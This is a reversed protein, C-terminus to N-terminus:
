TITSKREHKWVYILRQIATFNALVATAWIAIILFLEGILAGFGIYFVREPRQMIGIKCELNLSESRARVYSVMISGGLALLVAISTLVQTAFQDTRIFYIAAGLFMLYESFRDMTSDYLAGFKSGRGTARAINGDLTDCVGGILIFVGALRIFGFILAFAGAVNLVFGLTTFWNPNVELKALFNVIPNLARFYLKQFVKPIINIKRGDIKSRINSKQSM